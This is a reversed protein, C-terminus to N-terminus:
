FNDLNCEVKVIIFIEINNMIYYNRGLFIVYKMCCYYFFSLIYLSSEWCCVIIM